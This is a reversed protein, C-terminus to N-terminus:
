INYQTSLDEFHWDLPLVTECNGSFTLIYGQIYINYLQQFPLKLAHEAKITFEIKVALTLEM